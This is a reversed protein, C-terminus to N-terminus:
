QHCFSYIFASFKLSLIAYAVFCKYIDMYKNILMSKGFIYINIYTHAHLFSISVLKVRGSTPVITSISVERIQHDYNKETSASMETSQSTPINSVHMIPSTNLGYYFSHFFTFSKVVLNERVDHGEFKRWYNSM